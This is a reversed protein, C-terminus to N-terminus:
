SREWLALSRRWSGVNGIKAPGAACHSGSDLPLAIALIWALGKWGWVSKFKATPTLGRKRIISLLYFDLGDVARLAQRWIATKRQRQDHAHARHVLGAIREEYRETNYLDNFADLTAFESELDTESFRLMRKEIDSLPTHEHAAQEVVRDVLFARAQKALFESETSPTLIPQITSV